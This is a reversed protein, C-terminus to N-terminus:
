STTRRQDRRNGSAPDHSFSCSDGESCQRNAKWQYCEGAKMEVSVNRGKQSKVIVGTEIREKRANFNRTRAMQDIHRRVMIKLRQYSPMERNRVFEQEYMALVTQLQVTDQVKLKYLSELVNEKPAESRCRACGSCNRCWTLAEGNQDVRRMM